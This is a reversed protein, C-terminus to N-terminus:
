RLLQRLLWLSIQRSVFMLVAFKIAYFLRIKRKAAPAAPDFPLCSDPKGRLPAAALRTTTAVLLTRIVIAEPLAAILSRSV